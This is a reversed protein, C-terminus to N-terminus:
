RIADISGDHRRLKLATIRREGGEESVVVGDPGEILEDSQEEAGLIRLTVDARPCQRPM